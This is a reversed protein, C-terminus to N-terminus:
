WAGAAQELCHQWYIEAIDLSFNKPVGLIMGPAAPLLALISDKTSLPRGLIHYHEYFSFIPRLTIEPNRSDLEPPYKDMLLNDPLLNDNYWLDTLRKKRWGLDRERRRGRDSVFSLSMLMKGAESAKGSFSFIFFTKQRKEIEQWHSSSLNNGQKFKARNMRTQEM